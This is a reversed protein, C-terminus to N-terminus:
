GARVLANGGGSIVYIASCKHLWATREPNEKNCFLPTRVGNQGEMYYVFPLRLSLFSDPPLVVESGSQFEVGAKAQKAASPILSEGVTYCFKRVVNFGQFEVVARSALVLPFPPTVLFIWQLQSVCGAFVVGDQKSDSDRCYPCNMYIPLNLGLLTHGDSSGESVSM